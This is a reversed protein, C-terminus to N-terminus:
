KKKKSPHDKFEVLIFSIAKTGTNSTMHPAEPPASFNDGMKLPYDGTTGDAYDVHLSGDTLAYVFHAPHTHLASKYGPPITVLMSTMYTTDALVKVVTPDTKMFSQALIDHNSWLSFFAVTLLIAKFIKM